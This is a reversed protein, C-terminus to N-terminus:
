VAIIFRLAAVLADPAAPDGAPRHTWQLSPQLTLHDTVRGAYTIEAQTETPHLRHGADLANARYKPSLFAQDFGISLADHPRSALPRSILVGFQYGGVFPTTDGDSVGVRAFAKVQRVDGDGGRIPQDALLYLGNALRQLPAGLPGVDRIDSQAKTYRWAGIAFKGRGTWGAEAILLAGDGFSLDVGGPDGLVGAKANLIAAEFYIDKSPQSRVRVALATSPFISPGNPGTAALESGIGFAPALLLAASDNSYFESNLNYLGARVTVKDALLSQDLWAEFLRVRHQSVEINDVGQLTAALLNPKGGLNSLMQVHATLGHLGAAAGLDLDATVLLNDLYRVGQRTGEAVGSVDGTYTGTLRFAPEAHAAGVASLWLGAAMVFGIKAARMSASQSAWM